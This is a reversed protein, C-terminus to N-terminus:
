IMNNINWYLRSLPSFGSKPLTQAIHIYKMTHKIDSHGLQNKLTFLDIGDEILHTAYSHRLSHITGRKEIKSKELARRLIHRINTSCMPMGAVKGNFLYFIPKFEQIYRKLGRVLMDSIPVYRDKKCKSQRIHISKRNFDVDTLELKRLESIRLGSDYITGLILRNKLSVPTKLLLRIEEKSFVVPLMYTHAIKPLVVIMDQRNYIRYIHRLGSVLHKFRSLSPADNKRILVMYEEIEETSLDLPSRKYFIVLKSVERIYNKVCSQSKGAVLFKRIFTKSIQIYEPVLLYAKNTFSLDKM